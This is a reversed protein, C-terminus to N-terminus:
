VMCSWPNLYCLCRNQVYSLKKEYFQLIKHQLPLKYKQLYAWAGVFYKFIKLSYNYYQCNVNGKLIENHNKSSLLHFNVCVQFKFMKIIVPYDSSVHNHMAKKVPKPDKVM